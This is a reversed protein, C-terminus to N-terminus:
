VFTLVKISCDFRHVGAVKIFKLPKTDRYIAAAIEKNSNHIKSEQVM